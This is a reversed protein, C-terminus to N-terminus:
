IERSLLGACVTYSPHSTQPLAGKASAFPAVLLVECALEQTILPLLGILSSGGGSLIVRQVVQGPNENSFFLMSKRMVGIWDSVLPLLIARVKGDFQQEDLGYARVYQEAQDKPLGVTEMVAKQLLNSGSSHSVVFKLEGQSVVCVMMETAGLHVLLTGPDAASLNVARLVSLAHTEVLTPELGAAVYTDLYKQLQSKRIGVLLVRMAGDEAKKPRFLVQYELSLDEPSIPIHREAQWQIASALEADSLSPIAIVKTAVMSEPLSIRVDSHPLNYDATLASLLQKLQEARADDPPIGYGVTNLIEVSKDVQFTSGPKGVIAKISYSGVDLALVPM